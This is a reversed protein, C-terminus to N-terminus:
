EIFEQIPLRKYFWARLGGSKASTAGANEVEAM